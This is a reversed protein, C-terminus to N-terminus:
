ESCLVRLNIKADEGAKMEYESLISTIAIYTGDEKQFLNISPGFMNSGPCEAKDTFEWMVSLSYKGPKVGEFFYNGSGDSKAQAVAEKKDPDGLTVTVGSLLKHGPDKYVQGEIRGETPLATASPPVETPPVTPVVAPLASPFVTTAPPTAKTGCAALFFVVLCIMSVQKMYVEKIM